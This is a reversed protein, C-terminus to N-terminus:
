QEVIAKKSAVVLTWDAGTGSEWTLLSDGGDSLEIADTGDIMVVNYGNASLAGAEAQAEALTKSAIVRTLDTM